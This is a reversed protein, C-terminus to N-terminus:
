NNFTNNSNNKLALPLNSTIRRYEPIGYFCIATLQDGIDPERFAVVPAGRTKLKEYIKLLSQEDQTALAVIYNSNNKWSKFFIPLDHAFDAIAHASQALQVGQPLDNRTVTVLKEQVQTM